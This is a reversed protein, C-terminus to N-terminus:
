RISGILTGGRPEGRGVRALQGAEFFPAAWSLGRPRLSAAATRSAQPMAGGPGFRGRGREGGQRPEAGRRRARGYIAPRPFTAARAGSSLPAPGKHPRLRPGGATARATGWTLALGRRPPRRSLLPPWGQCPTWGSAPRRTPAGATAPGTVPRPRGGGGAGPPSLGGVM